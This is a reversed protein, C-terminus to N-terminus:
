LDSASLFDRNGHQVFLAVGRDTLQKFVKQVEIGTACTDDDGIWAEFLDGSFSYHKQRAQRNNCFICFRGSNGGPARTIFASRFYVIYDYIPIIQCRIRRQYYNRYDRHSRSPCRSALPVSQRVTKIKEIVDMGELVKGFVAYGWGQM